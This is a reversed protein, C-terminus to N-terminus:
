IMRRAELRWADVLGNRTYTDSNHSISLYPGGLLPTAEADKSGNNTNSTECTHAFDAEFPDPPIYELSKSCNARASWLHDNLSFQHHHQLNALGPVGGISVAREQRAKKSVPILTGSSESFAESRVRKPMRIRYIPANTIFLTLTTIHILVAHRHPPPFFTYVKPTCAATLGPFVHHASLPVTYSGEVCQERRQPSLM